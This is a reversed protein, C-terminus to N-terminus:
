LKFEVNNKGGTASLRSRLADVERSLANVIKKVDADDYEYAAKNGLKSLVRIAKIANGTRREALEVFKERKENSKDESQVAKRAMEHVRARM